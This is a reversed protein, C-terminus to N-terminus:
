QHLQLCLSVLLDPNGNESRMWRPRLPPPYMASPNHPQPHPNVMDTQACWIRQPSAIHIRIPRKRPSSAHRHSPNM